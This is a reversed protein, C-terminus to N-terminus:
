RKTKWRLEEDFISFAQKLFVTKGFQHVIYVAQRIKDEPVITRLFSTQCDDHLCTTSQNVERETKIWHKNLTGGRFRVKQQAFV